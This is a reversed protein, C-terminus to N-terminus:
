TVRPQPSALTKGGELGSYGMEFGSQSADATLRGVEDVAYRHRAGAFIVVMIRTNGPENGSFIHDDHHILHSDIRTKVYVPDQLDSRRDLTHDASPQTRFANM